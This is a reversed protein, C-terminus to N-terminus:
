TIYQLASLRKEPLALDYIEMVLEKVNPNGTQVREYLRKIFSKINGSILAKFIKINNGDPDIGLLKEAIIREAEM